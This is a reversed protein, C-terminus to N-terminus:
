PSRVAASKVRTASPSAPTFDTDPATCLRSWLALPRGPNSTETPPSSPNLQWDLHASVHKMDRDDGDRANKAASQSRSAALESATLFGPEEAQHSYARVIVGATLDAGTPTYFWKASASYKESESHDRHGDTDQKAFFYSQSWGGSDRGLAVQLERLAGAPAHNAKEIVLIRANLQAMADQRTAEARQLANRCETLRAQSDRFGQAYQRVQAMNTDIIGSSSSCQAIMTSLSNMTPATVPVKITDPLKPPLIKVATPAALAPAVFGCLVFFLAAVNRRM